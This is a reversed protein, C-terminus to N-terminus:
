EEVTGTVTITNGSRFSGGNLTATLGGDSEVQREGQQANSTAFTGISTILIAALMLTISYTLM